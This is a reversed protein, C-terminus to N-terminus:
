VFISCAEFMILHFSDLRAIDNIIEPATVNQVVYSRQSQPNRTSRKRRRSKRPSSGRKRSGRLRKSPRAKVEGPNDDDFSKGEAKEDDEQTKPESPKQSKTDPGKERRGADDSAGLDSPDSLSIEPKYWNGSNKARDRLYASSGRDRMEAPNWLDHTSPYRSLIEDSPRQFRSPAKPKQEPEESAEKNKRKQQEQMAVSPLVLTGSPTRRANILNEDKQGEPKLSPKEEANEAGSKSKGASPKRVTENSNTKPLNKRDNKLDKGRDKGFMVTDSPSRSMDIVTTPKPESGISVDNSKEPKNNDASNSREMSKDRSDARSDLSPSPSALVRTGGPTVKYLSDTSDKKDSKRPDLRNVNSKEPGSKSKTQENKAEPLKSAEPQNSLSSHGHYLTESPNRSLDIVIPRNSGREPMRVISKPQTPEQPKTPGSDRAPRPPESDTSFKTEKPVKDEGKDVQKPPSKKSKKVAPQTSQKPAQRIVPSVDKVKPRKRKKM